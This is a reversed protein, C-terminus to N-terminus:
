RLPHHDHPHVHPLAGQYRLGGGVVVVVVVVGAGRVGGGWGVGGRKDEGQHQACAGRRAACRHGHVGCEQGEQLTTTAAATPSLQCPAPPLPSTPPLNCAVPMHCTAHLSSALPTWIRQLMGTYMHKHPGCEGVHAYRHTYVKSHMRARDSFLTHVNDYETWKFCIEDDIVQLCM